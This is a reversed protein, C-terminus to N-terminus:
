PTFKLIILIFETMKENEEIENMKNLLHKDHAQWLGLMNRHTPPSSTTIESRMSSCEYVSAGQDFACVLLSSLLWEDM